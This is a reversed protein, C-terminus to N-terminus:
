NIEFINMSGKKYQKRKRYVLVKGFSHHEIFKVIDFPFISVSHTCENRMYPLYRQVVFTGPVM